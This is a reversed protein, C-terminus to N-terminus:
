IEAVGIKHKRFLHKFNKATIYCSGYQAASIFLVPMEKKGTQRGCHIHFCGGELHMPIVSTFLSTPHCFPPEQETWLPETCNLQWVSSLVALIQIRWRLLLTAKFSCVTRWQCLAPASTEQWLWSLSPLLIYLLLAINSGKSANTLGTRTYLQNGAAPEGCSSKGNCRLLFLPEFAQRGPLQLNREKCHPTCIMAMKNQLGYHRNGACKHLWCVATDLFWDVRFLHRLKGFSKTWLASDMTSAFPLFMAQGSFRVDKFSCCLSIHVHTFEEEETHIPLVFAYTISHSSDIQPQGISLYIDSGSLYTQISIM